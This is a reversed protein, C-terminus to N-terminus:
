EMVARETAEARNTKRFQSGSVKTQQLSVTREYSQVGTISHHGSREMIIKEPIGGDYMRTIGTARFSHNPTNKHNLGALAFM